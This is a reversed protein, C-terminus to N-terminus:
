NATRTHLLSRFRADDWSVNISVLNWPEPTLILVLYGDEVAYGDGVINEHPRLATKVVIEIRAGEVGIPSVSVLITRPADDSGVVIMHPTVM